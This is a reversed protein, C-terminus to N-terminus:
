RLNLLQSTGIGLSREASVVDVASEAIQLEENTPIVLVPFLSGPASITRTGPRRLRNEQEDLRFGIAELGEMVAQRTISDN